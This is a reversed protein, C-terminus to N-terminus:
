TESKNYAKIIQRGIHYALEPPVANGIQRAIEVKTGIFIFDNPFSQLLAGEKLSISRIQQPHGFQGRTFSDFRATITPSVEDWSMRGYVNRHGIKNSSIKHAKTLLHDPLHDRGQGEDLNLLREKNLESLMDRRHMKYDPHDSGDDPPPPLHGITERVTKPKESIEQPFRFTNRCCDKREGIVFVRKRRQPVGFNQADLTKQRIHYGAEDALKLAKEFIQKGRKGKIGTVNEMLFFMPMVERILDIYLIVLENRFDEDNGIRQISFGQCPPGGALLVLEGKEMNIESLLKGNLMGKIDAQKVNHTFYKYNYKQTEICNKDNDFSFLLDFGAKILGLSLGGAGSFADVATPKM